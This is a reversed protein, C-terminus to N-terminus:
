AGTRGVVRVGLGDRSRTFADRPLAKTLGDALQEATPVYM